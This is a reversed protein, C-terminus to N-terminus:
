MMLNIEAAITKVFDFIQTFLSFLILMLISIIIMAIITIILCVFNKGSNFQHIEKTSVFLMVLSILVFIINILSIFMGENILLVNSLITTILMGIAYPVLSYTTCIFIDKHKAEGDFLVCCAWNSVSFLIIIGIAIFFVYLFNTEMINNYNFRFGTYIIKILIAFAVFLAFFIATSLSGRKKYRYEEFGNIPHFMLSLAFLLSNNEATIGGKQTKRKLIRYVFILLILFIFLVTLIIPLYKILWLKRIESFAKSEWEKDGALMFYKEAKEFQSSFYFNKGSIIHTLKFESNYDTIKKLSEQAQEFEGENYLVVTNRLTEGFSTPNFVTINNKGKDIVLISNGITDLAVPSTFDGFQSGLRGFVSLLNGENDYQFIRGNSSDLVDVFHYKDVSIDIFNPELYQHTPETNGFSSFSLIDNGKQNIKRVKNKNAEVTPSCAYIMDENDITFSSYDIPLYRETKQRQNYNLISKWANDALLQLTVDVRNSGFFGIFNNDKNYKVFGYYLGESLVYTNKNNDQIIKIPRFELNDAFLASQPKTFTVKINGNIDIVLARNNDTDAIFIDGETNVYIGRPSNLSDEIGNNYIKDIVKILKYNKDLIIIRKNGSDLVFIKSDNIVLDSPQKFGDIGLDQGIISKSPLYCIPLMLKNNESDYTYGGYSEYAFVNVSFLQITIILLISIKKFNM